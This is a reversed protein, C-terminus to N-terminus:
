KLEGKQVTSSKSMHFDQSVSREQHEGKNGEIKKYVNICKNHNEYFAYHSKKLTM